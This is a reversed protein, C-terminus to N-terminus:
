FREFFSMGSDGWSRQEVLRFATSEALTETVQRVTEADEGSRHGVLLRGGPRTQESALRLLRPAVQTAIPWPPDALVWDFPGDKALAKACLEVKRVLVRAQEGLGLAELNQHIVAAARPTAEVFLCSEAGRSLAELGMAGTGAFLDVVSRGTPNGLISFVAERVRDTTPRTSFGKPAVLKRGRFKGAIIRM